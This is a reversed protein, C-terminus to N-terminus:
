CCCDAVMRCSFWELSMKKATNMAAAATAAAVAVSAIVTRRKDCIVTYSKSSRIACRVSYHIHLLM